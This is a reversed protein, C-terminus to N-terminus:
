AAEAFEAAAAALADLLRAVDNEGHAASLAIRLRASGQPVTPPRIATVWVGRAELRESLRLATANDGVVLAQIPTFSGPLRWGLRPRDALIAALGNRLQAVRANLRARRADGDAGRVLAISCTAADALAPPAATTYVCPRAAQM